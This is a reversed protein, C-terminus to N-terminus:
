KGISTLPVDPRSMLDFWGYELDSTAMVMAQEV